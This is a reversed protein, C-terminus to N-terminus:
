CGGGGSSGSGGEKFESEVTPFAKIKEKSFAPLSNEKLKTNMFGNAGYTLSYADYGLLRLYAVVMASQQGSYCYVLIPKDTPLTNLDAAPNFSTKQDYQIAGPLHGLAYTEAPVYNVIYYSALKDAIDDFKVTGTKFGEEAIAEVRKMLIGKATKEGTELVPFEGAAGKANATTELKDAYKDSINALWKDEAFKKNWGSMGWKMSFVNTLGMTRLISTAYASTQGTYCVLVIKDYDAPNVEETLHAFVSSFSINKAGEIAGTAFDKPTRLDLVYIYGGLEANVAEAELFLEVGEGPNFLNKNDKLSDTLIKFESVAEVKVEEKKTEGGGCSTILVTTFAFIALLILSLKKM